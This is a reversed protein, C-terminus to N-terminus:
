LQTGLWLNMKVASPRKKNMENENTKYSCIQNARPLWTSCQHAHSPNPTLSLLSQGLSSLFCIFVLLLAPLLHCPRPLPSLDPRTVICSPNQLRLLCLNSFHKHLLAQHVLHIQPNSFLSCPLPSLYCRPKLSSLGLLNLEM